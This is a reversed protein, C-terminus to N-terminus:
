VAPWVGEHDWSIPSGRRVAAVVRYKKQWFVCNNLLYFDTSYILFQRVSSRLRRASATHANVRRCCKEAHFSTLDAMKFNHRWWLFGVGDISAYKSSSCDQWIEDRDSEFRRLRLSTQLDDGLLFLLILMYYWNRTWFDGSTVNCINCSNWDKCIDPLARRQINDQAKLQNVRVSKTCELFCFICIHTKNTFNM